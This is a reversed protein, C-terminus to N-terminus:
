HARRKAKRQAESASACGFADSESLPSPRTSDEPGSGGLRHDATGDAFFSHYLAISYKVSSSSSCSLSLYLPYTYAFFFFFVLFSCYVESICLKNAYFRHIKWNQVIEVFLHVLQACWFLGFIGLLFWMVPTIRRPSQLRLRTM